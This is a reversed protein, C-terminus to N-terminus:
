SKIKKPVLKVGLDERCLEFDLKESVIGALSNFFKWLEPLDFGTEFQALSYSLIQGTELTKVLMKIVATQSVLSCREIERILYGERILFVMEGQKEQSLLLPEDQDELYTRRGRHLSEESRSFMDDDDHYRKILDDPTIEENPALLCAMKLVSELQRVNGPWRQEKNLIWKMAEKSLVKQGVSFTFVFNEALTRMAEAGRGRLSPINIRLQFRQLLDKRLRKEKVAKPIDVNTAAIIRADTHKSKDSGVPFYEGNQLVRLLKVQCPAALEGIEDLFITGEAAKSFQGQRVSHAGTFAGKEHGFLESALLDGDVGGVNLAIFPKDCRRSDDHIKRAIIEKGTGTEGLVLVSCANRSIMAITEAIDELGTMVIRERIRPEIQEVIGEAM